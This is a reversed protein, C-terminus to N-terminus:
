SVGDDATPACGLLTQMLTATRVMYSAITFPNYGVVPGGPLGDGPPFHVSWGRGREGARAGGVEISPEAVLADRWDAMPYTRPDRALEAYCARLLRFANEYFGRWLHLRHEEIRNAVGRGSALTIHDRGRHQPRSLEFATAIGACGGGIVAIESPRAKENSRHRKL